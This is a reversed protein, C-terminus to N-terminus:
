PDPLASGTSIKHHLSTEGLDEGRLMSLMYMIYKDDPMQTQLKSFLESAKNHEGSLYAQVAEDNIRAQEIKSNDAKSKRCLPEYIRIPETRGRIYVRDLLRYLFMDAARYTYESVITRAQYIRTLQEIRSAINVADGIVTYTIRHRTGMNGVSMLGSNIGIRIEAWPWGQNEFSQQLEVMAEHLDFSAAVARPAHEPQPLPAGWFAMVSDGIFKDITAGHSHLIETIRTFYENLMRTLDAPEVKEAIASFRVLDCFIVSMNRSQGELPIKEPHRCLERVVEPPAYHSFTDIIQQRLHTEEFYAILVNVVYLILITLLFYEMPLAASELYGTYNLYVPPIVLLLTLTSAAIPALLPLSFSLILGTLIFLLMEPSWVFQPLRISNDGAIWASLWQSSVSLDPPSTLELNLLGTANALFLLFVLSVLGVRILNINM